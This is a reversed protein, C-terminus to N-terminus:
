ELAEKICDMVIDCIAPHNGISKAYIFEVGKFLGAEREIEEPIDRGVHNGTFLFFPVVLIKKCGKNVLKKVNLHLNPGCLQLYSPEIIAPGSRKKIEKILNKLTINTGKAKSGHALIIIGLGKTKFDPNNKGPKLSGSRVPSLIGDVVEKKHIWSCDQCSWIKQNTRCSFIYEGLKENGCPYFPCYCFTCDEIGKHCPFYACSKNIRQMIKAATYLVGPLIRSLALICTPM